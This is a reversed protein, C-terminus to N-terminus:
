DLCFLSKKKSKPSLFPICGADCGAAMVTLVPRSSADKTQGEAMKSHSIVDNVGDALVSMNVNQKKM